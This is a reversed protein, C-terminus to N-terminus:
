KSAMAEVLAELQEMRSTLTEIETQQVDIEAQQAKIIVQQEQVAKIALTGFDSYALGLLEDGYGEVLEPFQKQIDQAIFGYGKPEDDEQRNYHYRVPNLQAIRSLVGAMPEINKKESADSLLIYRGTVRDIRCVDSTTGYSFGLDDDNNPSQSITWDRVRLVKMWASGGSTVWFAGGNTGNFSRVYLPFNANSEIVMGASGNGGPQGPATFAGVLDTTGVGVGNSNAYLADGQVDFNGDVTLMNRPSLTGLGVRGNGSFMFPVNGSRLVIDGINNRFYLNTDEVFGLWATEVGASDVLSFFGEQAAGTSDTDHLTLTPQTGAIHLPATPADTGMGVNGAIDVFIGRTQIAYPARTVPQRPSLTIANVTIELWRNTNDFADAGFDLELTFGGEAVPHAPFSQLSGIQSGGSAADWLGVDINHPGSAPVGGAALHGQYTFTTDTQAAAPGFQGLLAAALVSTILRKV